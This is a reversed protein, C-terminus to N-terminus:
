NGFQSEFFTIDLRLYWCVARTFFYYHNTGARRTQTSRCLQVLSAMLDGQKLAFVANPAQQTVANWVEFQFFPDDFAANPNHLLFPYVEADIGIDTYVDFGFM